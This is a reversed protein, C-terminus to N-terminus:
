KFDVKWENIGLLNLILVVNIKYTLINATELDKQKISNVSGHTIKDRISKLKNIKMSFETIPLNQELLFSELPSKMPKYEMKLKVTNWKTEFSEWDSKDVTEKIIDLAEQYKKEKQEQTLICNYKENNQSIGKMCIEIVNYRLLFKSNGDLLRSQIFNEIAKNLKTRNNSYYSLLDSNFFDSVRGNLNFSILSYPRQELENKKVRIIELRFNDLHIKAYIYDINLNLYFSSIKCIDNAFDLVETETLSELHNIKILPEKIIIVENDDINNKTTVWNFEPRYEIKQHRYFQEKGVYRNIQFSDNDFFLPPYYSKVFHFGARNLYFSSSNIQEKNSKKYIKVSSLMVSIYEKNGIFRDGGVSYTLIESDEFDIKLLNKNEYNSDITIHKGIKYSHETIRYWYSFTHGFRIVNPDFLIQLEIENEKLVLHSHFDKQTNHFLKGNFTLDICYSNYNKNKM